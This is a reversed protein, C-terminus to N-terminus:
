GQGTQTLRKYPGAFLAMFFATGFCYVAIYGVAIIAGVFYPALQSGLGTLVGLIIGTIMSIVMMFMMSVAFLALYGLLMIWSLTGGMGRSLAWARGIPVGGELASAPLSLALRAFLWIFVVLSAVIMVFAGFGAIVGPEDGAATAIVAIVISGLISIVMISVVTIFTIALYTLAVGAERSGLRFYFPGSYREGLVMMRCYATMPIAYGIMMVAMLGIYGFAFKAVGIEEFAREFRVPDFDLDASNAGTAVAENMLTFFEIYVLILPQWLTWMIGATLAVALTIPLWGVRLVAGFNGFVFKMAEDITKGIRVQGDSM